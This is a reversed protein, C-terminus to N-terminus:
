VYVGSELFAKIASREQETASIGTTDVNACVTFGTFESLIASKHCVKGYIHNYDDPMELTPRSITLFSCIPMTFGNAPSSSGTRDMSTAGFYLMAADTAIELAENIAGTARDVSADHEMRNASNEAREMAAASTALSKMFGAKSAVGVMNGLAGVALGATATTIAAALQSGTKCTVPIDVGMQGSAYVLPAESAYVCAVCQGTTIDVTMTIRLTEGLYDNPNLQICGVFPIYLTMATYPALDLFNNYKPRILFKGLDLIISSYDSIRNMTFAMDYTGLHVTKHGDTHINAGINFPYLRLSIVGEIPDGFLKLGNIIREIITGDDNWLADSFALLDARTAAYYTGFLGVGNYDSQKLELDEDGEKLPEPDQVDEYPSELPDNTPSVNNKGTLDYGGLPNFIDSYTDGGKKYFDSIEEGTFSRGTINGNNDIQPVHVKTSVTGEGHCEAIAAQSDAWWLGMANMYTTIDVPNFYCFPAYEGVVGQMFHVLNYPLRIHGYYGMNLVSVYVQEGGLLVIRSTIIATTSLLGYMQSCVYGEAIVQPSRNDNRSGYPMTERSLPTILGIDCSTGTASGALDQKYYTRYNCATIYPYQDARTAYDGWNGSWISGTLNRATVNCVNIFRARDFNGIIYHDRNDNAFTPGHIPFSVNTATTVGAGEGYISNNVSPVGMTLALVTPEYSSAVMIDEKTQPYPNGYAPDITPGLSWKISGITPIASLVNGWRANLVQFTESCGVGNLTMVGKTIDRYPKVAM